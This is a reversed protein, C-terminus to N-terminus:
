RRRQLDKRLREVDEKRFVYLVNSTSYVVLPRVSQDRVRTWVWKRSRGLMQAVLSATYLEIGERTKGSM